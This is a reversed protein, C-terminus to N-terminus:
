SRVWRIVGLKIVTSLGPIPDRWALLDDIILPTANIIQVKQAELHQALGESTAFASGEILTIQAGATLASVIQEPSPDFTLPTLQAIRTQADVQYTHQFWAILNSLSGHSM